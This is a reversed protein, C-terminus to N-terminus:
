HAGGPGNGSAELARALERRAGQVEILLGRVEQGDGDSQVLTTNGRGDDRPAPVDAPHGTIEQSAEDQSTWGADYKARANAIRMTETQADRLMESARLEAFRFRVEAPIGQAQLALGFLAELMTEVMHQLSKIGAAHIEWQRNAHTEGAGEDLGMLLPMTKLARAAMRELGQLLADVAGLSSSDIAGVPRNVKVVSTHVYADDPELEEYVDAVEDIVADIWEKAASSELDAPMAQALQELDIELDLRPYGQQAVVRRLDHLLGILFLCSFLAPAVLPRGYPNGPLPDVPLYLFTPIALSVWNSGQWQGPQWVIGRLDDDLQRFRVGYPDPTALDVFERGDKDLVLEACFAGRLFASMFLRNLVIDLSGYLEDLRKIMAELAAQGRGLQTKGQGSGTSPGGPRLATAEYGPNCFRLFDWLARSVEPSVDALLEVLQDPSMTDLTSRNLDYTRWTGLADPPSAV